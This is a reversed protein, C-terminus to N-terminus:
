ESKDLYYWDWKSSKLRYFINQPTTKLELAATKANQYEVGAGIIPKGKGYNANNEGSRDGLNAKMKEIHKKTKPKGKLAESIKKRHDKTKPKGMIDVFRYKLEEYLRGSQIKHENSMFWFTTTRSQINPNNLYLLKHAIYHERPTLIVLNYQDDTGGESRPIIHHVENYGDVVNRKKASQILKNYIRLYDV